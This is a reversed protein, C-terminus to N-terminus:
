KNPVMLFAANKFLVLLSIVIDNTGMALPTASNDNM